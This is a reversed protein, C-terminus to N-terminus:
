EIKHIFVKAEKLLEKALEDNYDGVYYVDKIGANIILKACLSCPHNTAYMTAGEVSIGFKAAQVIANQEAHTAICLEQREGSPVQIKERLCVRGSSCEFVGAPAGNYGTAIIRKDRVIVAGCQRRLCTSWAAIQYAVDMFRKDWKSSIVYPNEEFWDKHQPNGPNLEIAGDTSKLPQAKSSISDLKSKLKDSM